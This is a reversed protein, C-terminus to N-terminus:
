DIDYLQKAILKKEEIYQKTKLSYNNGISPYPLERTSYPSFFSWGTGIDLLSQHKLDYYGPKFSLIVGKAGLASAVLHHHFRSSYWVQNEKVPLGYKLTHSLSYYQSEPIIDSLALYGKYDSQPLAEVYGVTLGKNQYERIRIKMENIMRNFMKVDVLDSQICVVVDPLQKYYPNEENKYLNIGLFADDLGFKVNYGDASDKDRADVYDMQSLIDVIVKKDHVLPMFGAGTFFVKSNYKLKMEHCMKIIGLNDQWMNNLYGGGVVHFADVKSLIEEIFIRDLGNGIIHVVKDFYEKIQFGKALVKQKIKKEIKHYIVQTLKHSSLQYPNYARASVDWFFDTTNVDIDLSFFMESIKPNPTDIWIIADPYYKRIWKVWSILIFEDGYNYAGSLGILYFIKQNKNGM